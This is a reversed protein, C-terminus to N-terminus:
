RADARAPPMPRDPPRQPAPPLNLLMEPGGVLLLALDAPGNTAFNLLLRLTEFTALDDILHAEDVILLPREGRAASAALIARLRRVSGGLGTQTLVPADLEDALYDMLDAAPMAPFTLHVSRGGLESALTRALVTKGTGSPGSCSRRGRVM